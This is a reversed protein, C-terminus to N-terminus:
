KFIPASTSSVDIHSVARGELAELMTQLLLAKRQTEDASGWFVEIGSALVFTVDQNSTAKASVLQSRLEAPMDRVIKSAAHFAPSSTTRLSGEGIPVGEPKETSEAVLVGAADYQRFVGDQELSIAPVREEIRVLLTHPPIREVGFRQILPFGELSRLVENEDVLALPVGEFRQLAATVEEVNVAQAGEVQVDRVSMLPTFAGVIVFVLLLLIAGVSILLRRRAHRIAQTFRRTERRLRKKQQREAARVRREAAQIPDAPKSGFSLLGRTKPAQAEETATERVMETSPEASRDHGPEVASESSVALEPDVPLATAKPM